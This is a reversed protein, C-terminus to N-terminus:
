YRHRKRTSDDPNGPHASTSPSSVAVDPGSELRRYSWLAGPAASGTLYAMLPERVTDPLGELLLLAQDIEFFRAESVVGDPDHSYPEGNWGPVEFCYAVLQDASFGVDVLGLDLQMVYALEGVGAVELGTEERVERKLAEPLLEGPDAVGAPLTWHSRSQHPYRQRVLLLEGPKRM